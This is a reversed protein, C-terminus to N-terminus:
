WKLQALKSRQVLGVTMRLVFMVMVMVVLSRIVLVRVVIDLQVVVEVAGIGTTQILQPHGQKFLERAGFSQQQLRYCGLALLAAFQSCGIWDYHESEAM